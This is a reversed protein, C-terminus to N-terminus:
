HTMQQGMPWPPADFTLWVFHAVGAACTHICRLTCSQLVETIVVWPYIITMLLLGMVAVLMYQAHVPLRILCLSDPVGECGREFASAVRVSVVVRGSCLCRM